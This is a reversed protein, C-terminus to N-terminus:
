LTEAAQPHVAAPTAPAPPAIPAPATLGELCELVAANLLWYLTEAVVGSAPAMVPRHHGVKTGPRAILGEGFPWQPDLRWEGRRLGKDWVGFGCTIWCVGRGAQRMLDPRGWADGGVPEDGGFAIVMDDRSPPPHGVARRGSGGDSGGDAGGDFWLMLWPDGSLRRRAHAAVLPQTAVAMVRGGDAITVAAREATRVLAPWATSGVDALVANLRDLYAAGTVTPVPPFEPAFEPTSMPAAAASMAPLVDSTREPM